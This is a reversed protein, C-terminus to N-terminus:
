SIILRMKYSPTNLLPFIVTPWFGLKLHEWVSENVAAIIGIPHWYGSLGYVFHLLSGLVVIFIIGGLEWRFVSKM